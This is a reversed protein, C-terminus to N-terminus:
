AAKLRLSNSVVSVSSLAMAASAMIPSLVIGFFPFLAGAAVPICIVNYVFAFFLNQKITRMTKHSLRIADAILSLDSSMLTVDASEIAIDSGSRVAFGVYAHALAPADNIGDGVMAVKAGSKQLESIIRVKDAPLLGAHYESIGVQSAIKSAAEKSDGTLMVVRIGSKQLGQIATISTSRLADGVQIAGLYQGNKAVYFVSTAAGEFSTEPVLIGGETLYAVSGVLVPQGALIGSAGKGVVAIFDSAPKVIIAEDKAKVVVALALPHESHMEVSAATALVEAVSSGVAAIVSTVEPKGRTITGTKDLCLVDVLGAKQLAEANKILIGKKAAKGTAVVIATPTALGLACPCAIILVTVFRVLAYNLAPEPGVIFWILGSVLALVLVVPVFVASIRDALNQIPAKSAASRRVLAIIQNLITDNGVRTVEVILGGTTNMTGSSVRSGSEKKVPLPEGSLMSEDVDSSGTVVRGDVPIREGPRVRVLMGLVVKSAELSYESEKDVVTVTDPQLKILARIAEGTKGKAREELLRGLLILAVILAAAEFYVEPMGNSFPQIVDPFLVSALSYGYASGVGLAVLSNMDTAGHRLAKWAGVFFPRGSYLVVPTALLLQILHENPVHFYGHSMALVALPLGLVTAFIFQRRTKRYRDTPGEDSRDSAALELKSDSFEELLKQLDTGSIMGSVYTVTLNVEGGASVSEVDVIGNTTLLKASLSAAKEEADSGSLRTEAVSKRVGYGTREIVRILDAATLTTLDAEVIAEETTYSVTASSVGEVKQLKREIRLACAVCTMGEIPIALETKSGPRPEHPTIM